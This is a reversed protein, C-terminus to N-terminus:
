DYTGDMLPTAPHYGPGQPWPDGLLGGPTNSRRIEWDTLWDLIQMTGGDDVYSEWAAIVREPVETGGHVVKTFGAM